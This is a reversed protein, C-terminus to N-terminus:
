YCLTWFIGIDSCSNMWEDDGVSVEAAEMVVMAVEEMGAMIIGAATTDVRIGATIGAMIAEETIM